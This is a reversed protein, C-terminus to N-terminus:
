LRVFLIHGSRDLEFRVVLEASQRLRDSPYRKHKDFHAALEKQLTARVRRLDRAPKRCPTASSTSREAAKPSPTANPDSALSSNSPEAAQVLIDASVFMSWLSLERPV